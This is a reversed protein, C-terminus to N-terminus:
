RNELCQFHMKSAFGENQSTSVWKRALLFWKKKKWISKTALNIKAVFGKNQITSGSKKGLPFWKTGIGWIDKRSPAIKGDQPFM